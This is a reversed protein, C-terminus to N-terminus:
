LPRYNGWYVSGRPDIRVTKGAILQVGVPQGNSNLLVNKYGKDTWKTGDTYLGLMHHMAISVNSSMEGVEVTDSTNAQEITASDTSTFVDWKTQTLDIYELNTLGGTNQDVAAAFIPPVTMAGMRHAVINKDKAMLPRVITRDYSGDSNYIVISGNFYHPSKNTNIQAIIAAQDNAIEQNDHTKELADMPYLSRAQFHVRVSGDGEISSYLLYDDAYHHTERFSKIIAEALPNDGPYDYGHAVESASLGRAWMIYGDDRGDPLTHRFVLVRDKQGGVKIAMTGDETYGREPDTTVYDPTADRFSVKNAIIEAPTSKDPFYTAMAALAYAGPDTRAQRALVEFQLLHIANVLNPNTVTTSDILLQGNILGQATAALLEQPNSLGYLLSPISPETLQQIAEESRENVPKLSLGASAAVEVITKDSFEEGKCDIRHQLHALEHEITQRAWSASTALGPIRLAETHEESYALGDAVENESGGSQKQLVSANSTLEATLAFVKIGSQKLRPVPMWALADVMNQAAIIYQERPVDALNGINVDSDRGDFDGLTIRVGYEALRDNIPQFAEEITQAQSIEQRAVELESVTNFVRVTKAVETKILETNSLDIPFESLRETNPSCETLEIPAADGIDLELPIQMGIAFDSKTIALETSVASTVMATEVSVDHEIPVGQLNGLLLTARAIVHRVRHTRYHRAEQHTEPSQQNDM